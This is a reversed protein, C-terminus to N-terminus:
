EDGSKAACRWYVTMALVATVLSPGAMIVWPVALDRVSYVSDHLGSSAWAYGLWLSDIVVVFFAPGALMLTLRRNGKRAPVIAGLALVSAVLGGFLMAAGLLWGDLSEALFAPM